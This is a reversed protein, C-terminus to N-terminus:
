KVEIILNKNSKKADKAAILGPVWVIRGKYTIIPWRLREAVEIKADSFVDQIKKTGFKAEIKDGRRWTRVKLNGSFGVPLLINNKNSRGAGLRACLKFDNFKTVQGLKIDQAKDSIQDKPGFILAKYTKRVKLKGLNTEKQGPLYFLDTVATVNKQYIDATKGTQLQLQRKIIEKVIYPHLRKLGALEIRNGKVLRRETKLLYKDVFDGAEQGLALEGLITKEFSPNIKALEPIINRRIRNRAYRVDANSSDEHFKLRHKRAYSLIEAKTTTLLPRLIGAEHEKMGWIELPGTGRVLNLIVTEMQDNLHHATIIYAAKNDKAVSRFWRYRKDRATAEDKKALNLSKQLYKLGYHAALNSVFLAEAASEKRLGHNVHAVILKDAPLVKALIDLLVVSDAGGSVAIISVVRDLGYKKIIEQTKKDM